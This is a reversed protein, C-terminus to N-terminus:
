NNLIYKQIMKVYIPPVDQMYTINYPTRQQIFKQPIYETMFIPDAFYADVWDGIKPKLEKYYDHTPLIKSIGWMVVFLTICLLITFTEQSFKM